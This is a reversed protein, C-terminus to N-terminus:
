LSIPRCARARVRVFVKEYTGYMYMPIATARNYLWLICSAGAEVIFAVFGKIPSLLFEKWSFPSGDVYYDIRAANVDDCFTYYFASETQNRAQAERIFKRQLKSWEESDAKPCAVCVTVKRDQLALSNTTVDDLKDMYEVECDECLKAFELKPKSAEYIDSVKKALDEVDKASVQGTEPSIGDCITAKAANDLKRLSSQAEEIGELPFCQKYKEMEQVMERAKGYETKLRLTWTDLGTKKNRYAHFSADIAKATDGSIGHYKQLGESRLSRLVYKQPAGKQDGHSSMHLTQGMALSPLNFEANLKVGSAQLTFEENLCSSDKSAKVTSDYRGITKNDKTKSGDTSEVTGYRVETTKNETRQENRQKNMFKLNQCFGFHVKEVVHTAGTLAIAKDNVRGTLEDHCINLSEEHTFVELPRPREFITVTTQNGTNGTENYKRSWNADNHALQMGTNTTIDSKKNLNEQRLSASVSGIPTTRIASEPLEGHFMSASCFTGKGINYLDGIRAVGHIAPITIRDEDENESETAAAVVVDAALCKAIMCM